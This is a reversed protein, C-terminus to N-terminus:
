RTPIAFDIGVAFAMNSRKYTEKHSGITSGYNIFKDAGDYMTYIFGLNLNVYDTLSYRAGLGVSNTSLSHSLDSNFKENVGTQTRLFGASILFERNINYEVGFAVEILNQDIIENNPLSKGYDADKDFYYHVGAALNLKPTAKLGAGVSLMAPMDSRVRAGDPFMGTGDVTTQNELELQTLFEYKIGINFKRGPKISLGVVPTFGTGSQIADVEVDATQQDLATATALVIPRQASPLTPAIARLYDGPKIWGVPTNVQINRMFGSYTNNALVYRGGAFASLWDALAYSIGAQAGFFVSSGEFFVDNRYGTIGFQTLIPVLSAVPTEFSPLGNQYEASGGGGVPNFGFSLALKNQKYVAYVGPFVPAFVKGEYVSSNLLPNANTIERKQLITQNNLSFHFGNKLATLGAPNFYVADIELSADRAPNRVFSASQNTNTMIGGSFVQGMVLIKAIFLLIIKKM